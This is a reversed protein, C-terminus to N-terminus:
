APHFFIRHFYGTGEKKNQVIALSIKKGFWQYEKGSWKWFRISREKHYQYVVIWKQLICHIYKTLLSQMYHPFISFSELFQVASLTVILSADGRAFGFSFTALRTAKHSNVLWFLFRGFTFMKAAKYCTSSTPIFQVSNIITLTYFQPACVLHETTKKSIM